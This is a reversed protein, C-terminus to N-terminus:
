LEGIKSELYKEAEAWDDHTDIDITAGDSVIIPAFPANRFTKTNSFLEYRTVYLAGNEKVISRNAWEWQGGLRGTPNHALEVMSGNDHQWEWYFGNASFASFVTNIRDNEILSLAADIDRTTRFPSTPQLVVINELANYGNLEYQRVAALCVEDLQVHDMTLYMARHIIDLKELKGAQKAFAIASQEIDYSETTLCVLDIKDSNLAASLTYLFLPIGGLKKLNKGPVRKSNGRAPVIALTKVKDKEIM